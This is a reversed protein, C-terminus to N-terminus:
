ILQEVDAEELEMNLRRANQLISDLVEQEEEPDPDEQSAGLLPKWGASMCRASLSRWARMIIMICMRIDYHEKWFRTVNDEGTDDECREFLLDFMKKTYGKKFNSIVQQDMPQLLSTTNPPLFM